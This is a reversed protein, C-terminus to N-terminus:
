KGKKSLENELEKEIDENSIPDKKDINLKKLIKNLM